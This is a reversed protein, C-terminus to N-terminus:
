LVKSSCRPGSRYIYWACGHNPIPHTRPKSRPHVQAAKSSGQQMPKWRAQNHPRGAPERTWKAPLKRNKTAACPTGQWGTGSLRLGAPPLDQCVPAEEGASLAIVDAAVPL